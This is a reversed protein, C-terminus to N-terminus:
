SLDSSAAELCVFGEHQQASCRHQWVLRDNYGFGDRNAAVGSVLRALSVSDHRVQLIGVKM